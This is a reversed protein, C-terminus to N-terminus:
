APYFQWIIWLDKDSCATMTGCTSLRHLTPVADAGSFADLVSDRVVCHGAVETIDSSGKSNGRGIGTSFRVARVVAHADLLGWEVSTM